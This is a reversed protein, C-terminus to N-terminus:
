KTTFTFSGDWNAGPPNARLVAIRELYLDYLVKGTNAHDRLLAEFQAQASDWQQARYAALAPEFLQLALVTESDVQGEFGLPENITVAVDKCKVKVKDLERALLDPLHRRTEEGIIIAVGYEKTIGELRSALNVADGMVTYALRIESGM